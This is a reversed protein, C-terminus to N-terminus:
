ASILPVAAETTKRLPSRGIAIAYLEEAEENYGSIAYQTGDESTVEVTFYKIGNALRRIGKSTDTIRNLGTYGGSELLSSLADVASEYM